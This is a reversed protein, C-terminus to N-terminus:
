ESSALCFFLKKALGIDDLLNAQEFSDLLGSAM